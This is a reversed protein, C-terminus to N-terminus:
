NRSEFNVIADPCTKCDPPNNWLMAKKSIQLAPNPFNLLVKNFTMGDHLTVEKNLKLYFEGPSNLVAAISWKLSDLKPVGNLCRKWIVLNNKKYFDFSQGDGSCTTGLTVKYNKYIWTRFEGNTLFREMETKSHQAYASACCCVLLLLSIKKM